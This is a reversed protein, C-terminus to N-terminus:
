EVEERAPISDAAGPRSVAIASAKAARLLVQELPEGSLMGAAFYGLFTDGAATTDVAKVPFAPQFIRERGRMCWAGESGLTLVVGASPYKAAMADLIKEPDQEGSLAAGEIENVIFWSVRDLPYSFISEEMPSPNFIVTLGHDAAKRMFVPSRDLENQFIVADGPSFHSLIEDMEADTFTIYDDAFVIISNQGGSDVQLMTHASSGPVRKVYDTHIHNRTLAQDLVDGDAGLVGIHWIDGGARAVAISQNLGKGGPNRHRGRANITEGPRVIHDVDYVNDVNMSGYNLTKM